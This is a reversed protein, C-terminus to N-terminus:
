KHRTNLNHQSSDTAPSSGAAYHGSANLLSDAREVRLSNGDFAAFDGGGTLWDSLIVVRAGSAVTVDVAAHRHGYIFYDIHPNAPDAEYERSFAVLPEAAVDTVALAEPAKMGAKRSGASWGHAIAMTWRPHISAYLRRCLANRFVRRLLRFGLPREGVGDGHDIFFRKGHLERIIPGDVVEMGIESPLYDFIWMDHNGRVWTIKVGDDALRALEGFFRVFGRPVVARYEFWFDLADGLIFIETADRGMARLTDVVRREHARHDAVYRAGLHMDALFYIM